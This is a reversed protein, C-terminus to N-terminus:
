DAACRLYTLALGDEVRILGGDFSPMLLIRRIWVEGEGSCEVDYLVADTMGRVPVPNTLKCRSEHFFIVTGMVEVRDESLAGAACDMAFSGEIQALAAAPVLGTALGPVLAAILALGRAAGTM